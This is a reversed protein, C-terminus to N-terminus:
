AIIPTQIKLKMTPTYIKKCPRLILIEILHPKYGGAIEPALAKQKRTRFMYKHGDAAKKLNLLDKAQIM